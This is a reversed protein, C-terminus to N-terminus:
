KARAALNLSREGTCPRFPLFTGSRSITDGRHSPRNTARHEVVVGVEVVNPRDRALGCLTPGRPVM